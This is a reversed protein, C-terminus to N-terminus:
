EEEGNAILALAETLEMVTGELLQIREDKSKFDDRIMKFLDSKEALYDLIEYSTKINTNTMNEGKGNQNIITLGNDM